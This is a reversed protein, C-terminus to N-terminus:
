VTEIRHGDTSSVDIEDRSHSERGRSERNQEADRDTRREVHQPEVVSESTIPPSRMDHHRFAINVSLSTHGSLGGFVPPMLEAAENSRGLVVHSILDELM